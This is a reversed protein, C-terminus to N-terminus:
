QTFAFFFLNHFYFPVTELRDCGIDPPFYKKYSTLYKDCRVINVILIVKHWLWFKEVKKWNGLFYEYKSIQKM